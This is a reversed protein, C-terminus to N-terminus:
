IFFFFHSFNSGIIFPSSKASKFEQPFTFDWLSPLSQPKTEKDEKKKEPSMINIPTSTIVNMNQTKM